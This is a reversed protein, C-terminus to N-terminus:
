PPKCPNVHRKHTKCLGELAEEKEKIRYEIDQKVRSRELQSRLVKNEKQELASEAEVLVSQM